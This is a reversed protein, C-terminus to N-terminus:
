LGLFKQANQRRDGAKRYSNEGNAAIGVRGKRLVRRNKEIHVDFLFCTREIERRGRTRCDHERQAVRQGHHQELRATKILLIKCFKMGSAHDSAAKEYADM